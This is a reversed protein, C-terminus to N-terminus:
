PTPMESEIGMFDKNVAQFGDGVKQGASTHSAGSEVALGRQGRERKREGSFSGVDVHKATEAAGREAEGMMAAEGVREEPNWEVSSHDNTKYVQEPTPSPAFQFIWLKRWAPSQKEEVGAEGTEAVDQEIEGVVVADTRKPWEGFLPVGPVDHEDELRDHEGAQQESQNRRGEERQYVSFDTGALSTRAATDSSGEGQDADHKKPREPIKLVAAGDVREFGAGVVAEIRGPCGRIGVQRIREAPVSDDFSRAEEDKGRDIRELRFDIWFIRVVILELNAVLRFFRGDSEGGLARIKSAGVEIPRLIGDGLRFNEFRGRLAVDHVKLVKAVRLKGTQETAQAATVILRRLWKARTNLKIAVQINDAIDEARPPLAHSDRFRARLDNCRRLGKVGGSKLAWLLNQTM